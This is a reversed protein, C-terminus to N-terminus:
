NNKWRGQVGDHFFSTQCTKSFTSSCTRQWGISLASTCALSTRNSNLPPAHYWALHDALKSELAVTSLKELLAAVFVQVHLQM